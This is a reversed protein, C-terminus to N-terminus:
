PLIVELSRRKRMTPGGNESQREVTDPDRMASFPRKYGQMRDLDKGVPAYFPQRPQTLQIVPEFPSRSDRKLGSDSISKSVEPTDRGFARISGEGMKIILNVAKQNRDASEKLSKAIDSFVKVNEWQWPLPHQYNLPGLWTNPEYLPNQYRIKGERAQQYEFLKNNVGEGYGPQVQGFLDFAIDSRVQEEVSPIVSKAGGIGYQPRLSPTSEDIVSGLDAGTEAQIQHYTLPADAKNEEVQRRKRNDQNHNSRPNPGAGSVVNPQTNQAIQELLARSQDDLGGIGGGPGGGGGGAAGAGAGAGAGAPPPGGVGGGGDGGGVVAAPHLPGVVAAAQPGINNGAPDANPQNNQMTALIQTLISQVAANQAAQAATVGEGSFLSELNTPPNPTGPSDYFESSSTSTSSSPTGPTTTTTTTTTTPTSPSLSSTKVYSKVQDPTSAKDFLDKKIVALAITTNKGKHKARKKQINSDFWKQVDPTMEERM